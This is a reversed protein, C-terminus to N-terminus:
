IDESTITNYIEEAKNSVIFISVGNQNKFCTNKPERLYWESPYEAKIAEYRKIMHLLINDNMSEDKPVILAIEQYNSKNNNIIWVGEYEGISELKFAQELEEKTKVDEEGILDKSTLLEITKEFRTSMTDNPPNTKSIKYKIGVVAVILFAIIVLCAIVKKNM